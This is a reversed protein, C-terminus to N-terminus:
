RGEGKEFGSWESRGDADFSFRAGGGDTGDPKVIMIVASEAGPTRAALQDLQRQDARGRVSSRQARSRTEEEALLTGALDFIRIVQKVHPLDM